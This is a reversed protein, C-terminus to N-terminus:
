LLSYIINLAGYSCLSARFCKILVVSLNLCIGTMDRKSLAVSVLFHVALMHLNCFHHSFTFLFIHIDIDLWVNCNFMRTNHFNRRPETLNLLDVKQFGFGLSHFHESSNELLM